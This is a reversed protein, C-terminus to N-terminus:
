IYVADIDKNNAIEDFNDYSYIANNPVGYQAAIKEAKDRHGSVLGTIKSRDSIKVGPMFQQLSIRGLGVICYGIKREGSDAGKAQDPASLAAASLASGAGLMRTMERRTLKM